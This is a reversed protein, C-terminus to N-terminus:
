MKTYMYHPQCTKKDLPSPHKGAGLYWWRRTHGERISYSTPPLHVVSNTTKWSNVRLDDFDENDEATRPRSKFVRVLYYEAENIQHEDLVASEGFAALNSEPQALLAAKKTGVKSLYDCGTGIHAKLLAKCLRPGLKDALRHMPLFTRREGTGVAMWLEELGNDRFVNMYFLLYVFVDTDKSLVVYKKDGPRNILNWQIHPIIRWDAEEFELTLNSNSLTKEKGNVIMKAPKAVGDNNVTGSLVACLSKSRSIVEATFEQLM